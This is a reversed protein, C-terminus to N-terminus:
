IEKDQPLLPSPYGAAPSWFGALLAPTTARCRPILLLFSRLSSHHRM